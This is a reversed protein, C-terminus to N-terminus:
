YITPILFTLATYKFPLITIKLLKYNILLHINLRLIQLIYKKM